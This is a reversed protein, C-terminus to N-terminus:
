VTEWWMPRRRSRGTSLGRRGVIQIQPLREESCEIAVDEYHGCNHDGWRPKDCQVLVQENGTCALNDMWIPYSASLTGLSGDKITRIAQKFGLSRCLVHADNLGMYDDCLSGWKGYHWLGVVGKNVHGYRSTSTTGMLKITLACNMEDEPIETRPDGCDVIADCYLRRPLCADDKYCRFYGAPCSGCMREDSGDGCQDAGDCIYRNDLCKGNDCVFNYSDAYCKTRVM